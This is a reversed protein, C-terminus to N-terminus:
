IGEMSVFTGDETREVKSVKVVAALEIPGFIHPCRPPEQSESGPLPADAQELKVESKLRGTEITLLVFEGPVTKYFANAIIVLLKTNGTAHTFGEQNICTYFSGAAGSDLWTVVVCLLRVKELSDTFYDRNEAVAAEWDAKAALHYITSPVEGSTSAM